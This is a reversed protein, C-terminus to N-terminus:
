RIGMQWSIAKALVARLPRRITKASRISNRKELVLRREYELEDKVTKQTPIDAKKIDPHDSESVTKFLSVVLVGAGVISAVLQSGRHADELVRDFLEQSAVLHAVPRLSRRDDLV